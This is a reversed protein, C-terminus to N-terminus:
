QRAAVRSVHWGVARVRWRAVCTRLLQSHSVQSLAVHRAQEGLSTRAHRRWRRLADRRAFEVGRSAAARLLENSRGISHVWSPPADGLATTQPTDFPKRRAATHPTAAPIHLADLAGPIEVGAAVRRLRAWSRVRCLRASRRPSVLSGIQPAHYAATVRNAPHPRPQQLGLRKAPARGRAGWAIMGHGHARACAAAVCAWGDARACCACRRWTQLAARYIGGRLRRSDISSMHRALTRLRWAGLARACGFRFFARDACSACAAAYLTARWHRLGRVIRSADAARRGM